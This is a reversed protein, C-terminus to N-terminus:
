EYSHSYFLKLNPIKSMKWREYNIKKFAITEIRTIKEGIGKKNQKCNVGNVILDLVGGITEKKFRM